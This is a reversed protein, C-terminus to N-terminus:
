NVYYDFLIQITKGLYFASNEFDGKKLNSIVSPIVKYLDERKNTVKEILIRRKGNECLFPSIFFKRNIRWSNKDYQSM